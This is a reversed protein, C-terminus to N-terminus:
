MHNEFYMAAHVNVLRTGGTTEAAKVCADLPTPTEFRRRRPRHRRQLAQIGLVFRYGDDTKAFNSMDTDVAGPAVANVRIGRPGLAASLHEVLTDITGKSAAYAALKPMAGHAALSSVLVISNHRRM